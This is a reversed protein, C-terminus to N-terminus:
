SITMTKDNFLQFPSFQVLSANVFTKKVDEGSEGASDSAVSLSQDVGARLWGGLPAYKEGAELLVPFPWQKGSM